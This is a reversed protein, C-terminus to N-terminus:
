GREAAAGAADHQAAHVGRIEQLPPTLRGSASIQM